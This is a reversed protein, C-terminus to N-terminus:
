EKRAVGFFVDVSQDNGMPLPVIQTSVATLDAAAYLALAKSDNMADPHKAESKPWDSHCLLGGPRLLRGLAAMTADMDAPPVFTLVSSAVILDVQGELDHLISQTAENAPSLDALTVHLADVNTWDRDRIKDLLVDIMASSADIGVIRRCKGRMREILLGTGCGFDVVVAPDTPLPALQQLLHYFGTAYGGALDDWEGAMGNWEQNVQQQTIPHCSSMTSSVRPLHSLPLRWQATQAGIHPVRIESFKLRVKHRLQQGHRHNDLVASSEMWMWPWSSVHKLRRLVRGHGSYQGVRLSYAAEIM